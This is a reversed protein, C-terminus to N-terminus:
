RSPLLYEFVCSHSYYTGNLDCFFNKEPINKESILLFYTIMEKYIEFCSCSNGPYKNFPVFLKSDPLKAMGWERQVLNGRKPMKVYFIYGGLEM